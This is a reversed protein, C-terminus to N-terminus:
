KQNANEFGSKNIKYYLSNPIKKCNGKKWLIMGLKELVKISSKNESAVRGIIENLHLHNFGYTLTAIASETAYGKNWKNKFFRFGIDIYKEENRKLGCWGIFENTDKLLVAWRGFGHNKYEQYDKLFKEADQISKFSLDGTHKLVESDANLLFFNRADSLQLERLILRNTETIIHVKNKEPNFRKPASPNPRINKKLKM